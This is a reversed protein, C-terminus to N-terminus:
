NRGAARVLPHEDNALRAKVEPSALAPEEGLAAAAYLRLWWVPSRSLRELSAAPERLATAALREGRAKSRLIADVADVDGGVGAAATGPHARRMADVAAGPSIAYLYRVLGPAPSDGGLLSLYAGFEPEGGTPRDVTGLLDYLVRRLGADPTDLHPVAAAIKEANTFALQDLVLAASMAEETGPADRLFIAIELLLDTRSPAMEALRDLRAAADGTTGVIAEVVRRLQAQVEADGAVPAAGWATGSAALALCLAAAVWVRGRGPARKGCSM